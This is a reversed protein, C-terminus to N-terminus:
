LEAQSTKECWIKEAKFILLYKNVKITIAMFNLLLLGVSHLVPKPFGLKADQLLKPYM